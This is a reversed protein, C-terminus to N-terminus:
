LKGKAQVTEPADAYEEVVRRYFEKARPDRMKGLTQATRVLAAPMVTTEREYFLVARLYDRVAMEPKNESARIDGRMVLARAADTRNEGALLKVLMPELRAFQKAGFVAERYSWGVEPDAELKPYDKMLVDYVRLAGEFDKKGELATVLGMGATRDWELFRMETMVKQLAPIAEDYKKAQVAAIAADLGAPKDTVAQAYQDRTYDFRVGNADIIFVSGDAKARISVGDKRQGNKLVVHPAATASAAVAAVAVVAMWRNM